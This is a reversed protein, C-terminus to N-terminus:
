PNQSRTFPVSGQPPASGGGGTGGPRRTEPTPPRQEFSTGDVFVHTIVKDRAFIDGKVVVLNAIKGVEVSGLRDSVGLIEAAGLTMARLADDKSLGNEVAKNANSLFDSLNQAGGTQFAFRVGAQKLRGANKPTEVRMRLTELSEPDADPSAAATRRPFNLSVLVPVNEAKLRSAVKWAENGGAIMASLGFEKAFDLARIIERETNANMVLPVQRNLVPFLAELARDSDPRKMGKPNAAYAKQWEQLRRADLFMQRFASFTGLLSGPYGGGQLTTFSMHLAVPSRLIMESANDGATNILASQGNFMRERPVSLVTTFGGNRAAEISADGARILDAASIDPQLGAPYNSNSASTATAVAAVIPPQGGGGGPRQAGGPIGVSTNTDFLGPYVTMGSADFIRADAPIKAAAGVDVILGDRIVVSGKEIVAGSVTVIRANTIASSQGSVVLCTVSFVVIAFFMRLFTNKM